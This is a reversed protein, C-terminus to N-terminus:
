LNVWKNGGTNQEEDLLEQETDIIRISSGFTENIEDFSLKMDDYLTTTAFRKSENNINIEDVLMREKKDKNDNRNLSLFEFLYNSIIDMAPIIIDQIRAKGQLIEMKENLESTLKSQLRNLENEEGTDQESLLKFFERKHIISNLNAANLDDQSVGNIFMFPRTIETDYKLEDYYFQLDSLLRGIIMILSKRQPNFLVEVFGGTEYDLQEVGEITGEQGTENPFIPTVKIPNYFVDYDDASYQSFMLKDNHMFFIMKGSIFYKWFDRIKLHKPLGEIRYKTSLINIIHHYMNYSISGVNLEGESTFGNSSSNDELGFFEGLKFLNDKFGGIQRNIVKYTYLDKTTNEMTLNYFFFPFLERKIIVLM